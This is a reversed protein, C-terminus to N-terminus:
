SVKLDFKELNYMQPLYPEINNVDVLKHLSKAHLTMSPVMSFKKPLNNFTLMEIHFDILKQEFLSMQACSM